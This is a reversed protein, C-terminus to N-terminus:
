FLYGTRCQVAVTHGTRVTTEGSIEVNRPADLIQFNASFKFVYIKNDSNSFKVHFLFVFAKLCLSMMQWIRQSVNMCLAMIM